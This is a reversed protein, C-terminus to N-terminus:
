YYIHTLALHSYEWPNGITTFAAWYYPHSLDRDTVQQLESPLSCRSRSAILSNKFTLDRKLMALQNGGLAYSKLPATKLQQYFDSMLVLTEVDDVACLSVLIAM